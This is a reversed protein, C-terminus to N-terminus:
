KFYDSIPKSNGSVALKPDVYKNNVSTIPYSRNHGEFYKKYIWEGKTCYTDWVKPDGISDVEYAYDIGVIHDYFKIISETNNFQIKGHVHLRGRSSQEPYVEYEIGKIRSYESLITCYQNYRNLIHEKEGGQLNVTWTYWKNLELTEPALCKQKESHAM